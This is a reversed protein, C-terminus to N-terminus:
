NQNDLAPPNALTIFTAYSTSVYGESNTATVTFTHIQKPVLETTNLGREMPSPSRM